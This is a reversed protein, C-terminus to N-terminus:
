GLCPCPRHKLEGPVAGSFIGELQRRENPSALLTRLAAQDLRYTLANSELLVSNEWLITLSRQTGIHPDRIRSSFLLRDFSPERGSWFVEVDISEPEVPKSCRFITVVEGDPAGAKAM